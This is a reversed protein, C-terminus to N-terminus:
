YHETRVWHEFSGSVASMISQAEQRQVVALDMEGRMAHISAIFAIMRCSTGIQERTYRQQMGRMKEELILIEDWRDLRFLCHIREDLAYREMLADQLQGALSEGEVLYSIAQAYEGVRVLAQGADLLASLREQKNNFRPDRSLELRRLCVQVLERWLRRHFYLDTLTAFAMSLALSSDLKEAMELASRLSPDRLARLTQDFLQRPPDLTSEDAHSLDLWILRQSLMRQRGALNIVTADAAQTAIAGFTALASAAVLLLFGAFIATIRWRLSHFM